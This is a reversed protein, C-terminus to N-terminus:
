AKRKVKRRKTKTNAAPVLLGSAQAKKALMKADKAAAQQKLRL